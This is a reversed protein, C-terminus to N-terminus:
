GLNVRLSQSTVDAPQRRIFPAHPIRLPAPVGGGLLLPALPQPQPCSLPEGAAVRGTLDGPVQPDGFPRYAPPPPGPPVAAGPCQFEPSWYRPLPKGRLLKRPQLGLQPFARQRVPEGTVLPPSDAPHLRQDALQEVDPVGDLAGPLQHAPM